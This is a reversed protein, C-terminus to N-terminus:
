NEPKEDPEPGNEFLKNLENEEPCEIESNIVKYVRDKLTDADEDTLDKTEIPPHIIIRAIGPGGGFGGNPKDPLIKWNNVFTIPIVPIKKSIALKFPGNKFPIMAPASDPIQGEPFISMSRGKDIHEAAKIFAKYASIKNDRDVAINMEKFFHNFLPLKQLEAKAMFTFYNPIALYSLIVDLYSTHNACFMYVQGEKIHEKGEVKLFIGTNHVILRAWFKKLKFAHPFWKEKSLFIYFFPFLLLFSIGMNAFFLTRWIKSAIHAPKIM